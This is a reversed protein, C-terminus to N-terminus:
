SRRLGDPEKPKDTQEPPPSFAQFLDFKSLVHRKRLHAYTTLAVLFVLFMSLAVSYRCLYISYGLPILSALALSRALLAEADWRSGISALNPNRAWVFHHCLEACHPIKDAAIEFGFQSKFSRLLVSNHLQDCKWPVLRKWLAEIVYSPTGLVFGILYASFLFLLSASLVGEIQFTSEWPKWGLWGLSLVLFGGPVIRGLLDFFFFPIISGVGGVSKVPEDVLTRENYWYAKALLIASM